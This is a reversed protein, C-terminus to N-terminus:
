ECMGARGTARHAQVNGGFPMGAADLLSVSGCQIHFEVFDQSGPGEGGDVLRFQITASDLTTCGAFGGTFHGTGTGVMTDFDADPSGPDVGPEDTCTVSTLTDLHFNVEQGQYIFAVELSNPLVSTGCHLEFGYRTISGVEPRNGGGTMRGCEFPVVPSAVQGFAPATMSEIMPVAWVAGGVVASRKLLDRRKMGASPREERETEQHM